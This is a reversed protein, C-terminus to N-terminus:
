RKLLPNKYGRIYRTAKAIEKLMVRGVYETVKKAGHIKINVNGCPGQLFQGFGKKKDLMRCVYGPYDASVVPLQKTVTIPHGTFNFLVIKRQSKAMDIQMINLSPDVLGSEIDLSNVDSVRGIERRNVGLYINGNSFGVTAPEQNKLAESVAQRAKKILLKKYSMPIPNFGIFDMGVPTTHAHTATIIINKPNLDISTLEKRIRKDLFNDIVILDFTILVVKKGGDNLITARVELPDIVRREKVKKDYDYFTPISKSYPTIDAKAFGAKFINQMSLKRKIM